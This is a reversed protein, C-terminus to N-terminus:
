LLWTVEPFGGNRGGLPLIDVDVHAGTPNGNGSVDAKIQVTASYNDAVTSPNIQILPVEVDAHAPSKSGTDNTGLVTNTNVNYPVGSETYFRITSFYLKAIGAYSDTTVTPQATVTLLISYTGSNPYKLKFVDEYVNDVLYVRKYHKPAYVGREKVRLREIERELRRVRELLKEDINSM